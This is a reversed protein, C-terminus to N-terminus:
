LVNPPAVDKDKKVYQDPAIIGGSIILRIAQEIKMDLHIVKDKNIFLLFGTTPNPTSPIFVNVCDNSTKSKIEGSAEGTIFGIIYTGERSLEVLVAKEFSKKNILLHQILKHISIYIESVIPIRIVMNEFLILFRKGFIRGISFGILWIVFITLIFSTFRLLIISYQNGFLIKFIPILFPAAFGSIWTFIIWIIYITIWLPLITILGTIFYKKLLIKLDTM